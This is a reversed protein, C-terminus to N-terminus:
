VFFPLACYDNYLRNNTYCLLVIDFPMVRMAKILSISTFNSCFFDLIALDFNLVVYFDQPKEHWAYGLPKDLGAGLRHSISASELGPQRWGLELGARPGVWIL